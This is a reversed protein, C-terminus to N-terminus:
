SFSLNQIISKNGNRALERNLVERIGTGDPLQLEPEIEHLPVLVFLREQMYPHPVKLEEQEIIDEGYLLIDLDITRPGWHEIRRRGLKIEINQLVKLLDLASLETEVAVVQNAFADQDTKGWPATLYLSSEGTIKVGKTAEIHYLADSLNEWKDGMNSGLSIYAKKKM